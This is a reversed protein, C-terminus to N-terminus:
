GFADAQVNRFSITSLFLHFSPGNPAYFAFKSRFIVLAFTALISLILTFTNMKPLFLVSCLLCHM